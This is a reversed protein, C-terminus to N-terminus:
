SRLLRKGRRLLGAAGLGLADQTRWRARRALASRPVGRDRGTELLVALQEAARGLRQLSFEREATARSEAGLRSVVSDQALLKLVAGAVDEAAVLLGNVEHEVPEGVVGRVAVVPLGAAMAEAVVRPFGESLSPHVLVRSARMVDAVDAKGLNGYFVVDARGGYFARELSARTQGDGVFALRVARQRLPLLAAQNKMPVFGGVCVVDHRSGAVRSPHFLDAEVLKPLRMVAEQGLRRRLYRDQEADESLALLIGKYAPYRYRGGVIAVVASSPLTQVLADALPTAIGKLLIVDPESAAVAAVLARSTRKGRPQRSQGADIPLWTWPLFGDQPDVERAEPAETCGFGRVQWHPRAQALRSALARDRRVLASEHLEAGNAASYTHVVVIKM